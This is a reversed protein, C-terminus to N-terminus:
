ARKRKLFARVGMYALALLMLPLAADGVPYPDAPGTPDEEDEWGDGNADEKKAKRPGSYSADAPDYTGLKSGTLVTGSAAASPLASGSSVMVSTSQMEAKPQQALSQATAFMMSAVSVMAVILLYRMTKM